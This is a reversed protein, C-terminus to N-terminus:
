APRSYSYLRAFSQAVDRALPPNLPQAARELNALKDRKVSLGREPMLAEWFFFEEVCSKTLTAADDLAAACFTIANRVDQVLWHTARLEALLRQQLDMLDALLERTVEDPARSRAFEVVNHVVPAHRSVAAAGDVGPRAAVLLWEATVAACGGPRAVPAADCRSCACTFAFRSSIQERRLATPLHLGAIYSICLEDGARVPAITFLEGGSFECNPACSHNCRSIRTTYLAQAAPMGSEDSLQFSNCQVIAAVRDVTAPEVDDLVSHLVSMVAAHPRLADANGKLRLVSSPAGPRESAAAAAVEDEMASVTTVVHYGIELLEDSGEREEREAAAYVAFLRRLRGCERRAHRAVAPAKAAICASCYAAAGDCATCPHLPLSGSEVAAGLQGVSRGCSTCVTLVRAVNDDGPAAESAVVSESYVGVSYPLGGRAVTTLPAIPATAFLGLDGERALRTETMGDLDGECTSSPSASAGRMTLMRGVAWALAADLGPAVSTPELLVSIAVDAVVASVNADDGIEAGLVARLVRPKVADACLALAETAANAAELLQGLKRLCTSVNGLIKCREDVDCVPDALGARYEVVAGALDGAKFKENGSLRYRDMTM